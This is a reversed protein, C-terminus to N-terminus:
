MLNLMCKPLYWKLYIDKSKFIEWFTNWTFVLWINSLYGLMRHIWISNHTYIIVRCLFMVGVEEMYHLFGAAMTNYKITSLAM